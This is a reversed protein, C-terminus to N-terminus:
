DYDWLDRKFGRLDWQAESFGMVDVVVDAPSPEIEGLAVSSSPWDSSVAIDPSPGRAGARIKHGWFPIWLIHIGREIALSVKPFRIGWTEIVSKYICWMGGLLRTLYEKLNPSPFVMIAQLPFEEAARPPKMKAVLHVAKRHMAPVKPVFRAGSIKDLPFFRLNRFGQRQNNTQEPRVSCM